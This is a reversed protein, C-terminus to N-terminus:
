LLGQYSLHGDIIRAAATYPHPETKDPGLIHIVDHGQSKLYDAIYGRHCNEWLREACMIALPGAAAAQLLRAIGRAFEDSDM